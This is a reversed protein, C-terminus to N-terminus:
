GAGSPPEAGDAVRAIAARESGELPVDLAARMQDLQGPTRPGVVLATVDPDTLAWALALTSLTVGHGAAVRELNALIRYTADTALHGYWDPRLTM